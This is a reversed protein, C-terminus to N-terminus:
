GSDWRVPSLTTQRVPLPIQAKLKQLKKKKVTKVKIINGAVTAAPVLVAEIKKPLRERIGKVMSKVDIGTNGTSQQGLAYEKM